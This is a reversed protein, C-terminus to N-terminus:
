GASEVVTQAEDVARPVPASKVVAPLAGGGEPSVYVLEWSVIAIGPWEGPRGVVGTRL